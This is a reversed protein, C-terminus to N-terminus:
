MILKYISVGITAGLDNPTYFSITGGGRVQRATPNIESNSEVDAATGPPVTATTTITGITDTPWIAVDVKGGNTSGNHDYSFLAIFTGQLSPITLDFQADSELNFKYKLDTQVLGFSNFGAGDRLFQFKTAM